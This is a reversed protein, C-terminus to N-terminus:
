RAAKGDLIFNIEALLIGANEGCIPSDTCKQLHERAVDLWDQKFNHLQWLELALRAAQYQWLGDAVKEGSAIHLAWADDYRADFFAERSNESLAAFWSASDAGAVPKEPKKEIIVGYGALHRAVETLIADKEWALKKVSSLGIHRRYEELSLEGANWLLFQRVTELYVDKVPSQLRKQLLSWNADAMIEPKEEVAAFILLLVQESNSSCAADTERIFQEYRSAVVKDPLEAPQDPAESRDEPDITESAMVPTMTATTSESATLTLSAREKVSIQALYSQYAVEGPALQVAYQAQTIAQEPLGGLMLAEALAHRYVASDVVKFNLWTLRKIASEPQKLRTEAVALMYHGELHEPALALLEGAASVVDPWKQMQFALRTKELAVSADAPFVPPLASLLLLVAALSVPLILSVHRFCIIVAMNKQCITRLSM